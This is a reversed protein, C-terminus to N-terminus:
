VCAHGPSLVLRIAAALRLMELPRESTTFVGLDELLGVSRLRPLILLLMLHCGGARVCVLVCASTDSRLVNYQNIRGKLM